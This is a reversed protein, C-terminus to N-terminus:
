LVPHKARSMGGRNITAQIDRLFCGIDRSLKSHIWFTIYWYTCKEIHLFTIDTIVVVVTIITVVVLCENVVYIYIYAYM